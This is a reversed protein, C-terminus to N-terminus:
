TQIRAQRVGYPFGWTFTRDAFQASDLIEGFPAFRVTMHLYSNHPNHSCAEDAWTNGSALCDDENDPLTCEGPWVCIGDLWEAGVAECADQNTPLRCTESQADWEFGADSCDQQTTHEGPDGAAYEIWVCGLTDECAQRYNPPQWSSPGLMDSEIKHHDRSFACLSQIASELNPNSSQDFPSFSEFREAATVSECAAALKVEHGHGQSTPLPGPSTVPGEVTMEGFIRFTDVMYVQCVNMWPHESDADGASKQIIPSFYTVGMLKDYVPDSADETSHFHEYAVVVPVDATTVPDYWSMRSSRLGDYYNMRANSCLYGDFIHGITGNGGFVVSDNWPLSIIAVEGSPRKLPTVIDHQVNLTGESPSRTRQWFRRQLICGTALSFDGKQYGLSWSGGWNVAMHTFADVEEFYNIREVTAFGGMDPCSDIGGAWWTFECDLDPDDIIECAVTHCPPDYVMTRDSWDWTWVHPVNCGTRFTDPFFQGMIQSQFLGSDELRTSVRRMNLLWPQITERDCPLKIESGGAYITPVGQNIVDWVTFCEGYQIVLYGYCPYLNDKHAVIKMQPVSSPNERANVCVVMVPDDEFFAEHGRDTTEEGGCHFHFPVEDVRGWRTTEIDATNEARDIEIIVAEIVRTNVLKKIDSTPFDINEHLRAM